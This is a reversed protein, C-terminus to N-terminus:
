ASGSRDQPRVGEAIQELEDRPAELIRITQEALALAASVGPTAPDLARLRAAHARWAEPTLESPEEIWPPLTM